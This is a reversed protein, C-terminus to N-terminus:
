TCAKSGTSQQAHQTLCHLLHKPTPPTDVRHPSHAGKKRSAFTLTISMRFARGHAQGWASLHPPLLLQCNCGGPQRTSLDPRNTPCGPQELFPPCVGHQPLQFRPWHRSIWLHWKSSYPFSWWDRLTKQDCGGVRKKLVENTEESPSSYNTGIFQSNGLHRETEQLWQCHKGM